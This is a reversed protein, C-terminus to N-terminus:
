TVPVILLPVSINNIIENTINGAATKERKYAGIVVFDVKYEKAVNLITQTIEGEKILTIISSDEFHKKTENLFENAESEKLPLLIKKNAFGIIQVHKTASHKILSSVVHLLIIEAKMLKALTFGTEAIKYSDVGYNLAILIKKM